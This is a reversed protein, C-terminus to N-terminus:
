IKNKREQREKYACHWCINMNPNMPTICGNVCYLRGKRKFLNFISIM